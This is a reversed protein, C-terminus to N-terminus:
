KKKTLSNIDKLVEQPHTAPNINEYVKVVIGEPDILFSTRRTKEGQWVGYLNNIRVDEDALLTFPLSYKGAFKKHSDVSDHSIGVVKFKEPDFNPFVDRFVCAETTCGSTFDGPYFYLLLYHGKYKALNHLKNDQDPLSFDPAKDGVNPKM